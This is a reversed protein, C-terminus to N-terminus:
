AGDGDEPTKATHVVKGAELDARQQKRTDGRHENTAQTVQGKNRLAGAALTYPPNRLASNM